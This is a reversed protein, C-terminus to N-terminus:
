YWQFTWVSGDVLAAAYADFEGLEMIEPRGARDHGYHTVKEDPHTVAM